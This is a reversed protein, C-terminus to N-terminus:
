FDISLGIPSPLYTPTPHHQQRQSTPRSRSLTKVQTNDPPRHLRLRAGAPVQRRLNRPLLQCLALARLCRRARNEALKRLYPLHGPKQPLTPRYTDTRRNSLMSLHARVFVLREGAPVTESPLLVTWRCYYVNDTHSVGISTICVEDTGPTNLLPNAMGEQPGAASQPTAAAFGSTSALAAATARQSHVLPRSMQADNPLIPTQLM